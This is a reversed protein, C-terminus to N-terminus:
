VELRMQGDRHYEQLPAVHAEMAGWEAIGAAAAIAAAVTTLCPIGRVTATRRIIRRMSGIYARRPRFHQWKNDFYASASHERGAAGM